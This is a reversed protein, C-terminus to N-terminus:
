AVQLAGCNQDCHTNFFGILDKGEHAVHLVFNRDDPQKFTYDAAIVQNNFAPITTQMSGTGLYYM